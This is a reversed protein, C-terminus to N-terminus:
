EEYGYTPGKDYFEDGVGHPRKRFDKNELSHIHPPDDLWHRVEEHPGKDTSIMTEVGEYGMAKMLELAQKKGEPGAQFLKALKQKHDEPINPDELISEVRTGALAKYHQPGKEDTVQDPFHSNHVSQVRPIRPEGYDFMEKLTKNLEEKIIRKLQKNTLKM